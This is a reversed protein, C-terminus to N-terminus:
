RSYFELVTNLDLYGEITKPKGVISGTMSDADFTLLNPMTYEKMKKAMDAFLVSKKSGPRVAIVDGVRVRHSAITIKKGNVTIHGHSVMQRSLRRTHALGLRYTVNDLRTELLEFLTVTALEGKTAVAENVYKSFQGESINYMFRVKQKEIFQLGFSSLQKPRKNKSNKAHRAESAVFKPTQCKEFVGPGLRRCIKYKQVTKM